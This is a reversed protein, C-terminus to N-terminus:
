ESATSDLARAEVWRTVFDRGAPTLRYEVLHVNTKLRVSEPETAELYGDQLLYSVLIEIWPSLLISEKDPHDAFWKLLRQELEGYRSTLISLNAKYQLMSKRDFEGKDYRSHDNPCLAILNEFKHENVKEWPVIHAIETTPHRCTPIACRHGAEILVQRKLPELIDPRRTQETSAM